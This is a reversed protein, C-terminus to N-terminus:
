IDAQSLTSFGQNQAIPNWLAVFKNKYSVATQSAAMAAQYNSDEPAPGTCSGVGQAWNLFDNDATLSNQIAQVLDAKLTVGNPLAGASLDEAQGLENQRDSVDQQLGSTGDTVDSCDQVEAVNSIVSSRSSSSQQLLSNMAAAQDTESGSDQSVPSTPAPGPPNSNSAASSLGAAIAIAAVLVVTGGILIKRVDRQARGSRNGSPITM